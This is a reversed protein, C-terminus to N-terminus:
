NLADALRTIGGQHNCVVFCDDMYRCFFRTETKILSMRQQEIYGIYINALVPGLPSGMAVGDIQKYYKNNFLFQVNLVCIHLLNRLDNTELIFPINNDTIILNIVDICKLVPVSTFLSVVDLSGVCGNELGVTNIQHIAKVFRFSDTINFSCVSNVM